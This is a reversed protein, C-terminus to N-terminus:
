DPYIFEVPKEVDPALSRHVPCTHATNELKKRQDATLGGPMRIRIPIAGIRRPDSKMHKELTFSAGEFPIGDREAVIAMTTVMCSALGASVLDTPSFSSGDGKNDVPAATKLVYGSSDHSVEMKLGGVYTGSISVSM